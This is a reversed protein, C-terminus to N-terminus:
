GGLYFETEAEDEIFCGCALWIVKIKLERNDEGELEKQSWAGYRSLGKIVTERDFDPISIEKEYDSIIPYADYGGSACDKIIEENFLNRSIIM